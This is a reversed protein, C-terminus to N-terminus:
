DTRRASPSVSTAPPAIGRGGDARGGGRQASAASTRRSSCRVEVRRRSTPAPARGSFPSFPLLARRLRALSTSPV